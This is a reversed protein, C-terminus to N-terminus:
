RRVGSVERAVGNKVVTVGGNQKTRGILHLADNGSEDNDIDAISRLALTLRDGMQQAVTLIQAQQPSLELTATRGVVVKEGEKDEITQDIALVRINNLITETAYEQGTQEDAEVRRTMIIDVRDNPLVFGGASTDVSISTAVARKGAPLIVSMFGQDARVLKSDRIPEGAFIQARAVAGAIENMAEPQKARTIFSTNASSRPWNEWKLAADAVRTGVPIDVAAVLVEEGDFKPAEVVTERVVTPRSLNFALMAAMVGAGLAVGLVAVRAVRM